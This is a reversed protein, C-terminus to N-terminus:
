GQRAIRGTRLGQAWERAGREEALRAMAEHDYAVLRFEVQWAHSSGTVIAYSAMPTATEVLHYVPHDDDYAPCGVSGPNVVLRGDALRLARPLHTHGCLILGQTVGAADAEIDDPERLQMRGDRSPGDLFYRTDSGPTGHCAFVMDRYVLTAPLAGLWATHQPTLEGLVALDWSTMASKDGAAVWRDHNGRVSAYGTAMLLDASRAANLPGSVHDGLMLVDDVHHRAIDELVAELALDNGHVDAIVALRM